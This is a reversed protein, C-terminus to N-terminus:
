NLTPIKNLNTEKKRKLQKIKLSKILLDKKEQKMEKRISRMRYEKRKM